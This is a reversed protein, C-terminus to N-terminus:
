AIEKEETNTGQIIYLDKRILFNKHLKLKSFCQDITKSIKTEEKVDFKKDLREEKIKDILAYLAKEIYLIELDNFLFDEIKKKSKKM